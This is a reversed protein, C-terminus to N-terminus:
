IQRLIRNISYKLIEGNRIDAAVQLIPRNNREKTGLVQVTQWILKM